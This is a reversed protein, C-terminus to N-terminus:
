HTMYKLFYKSTFYNSLLPCSMNLETEFPCAPMSCFITLLWLVPPAPCPVSQLLRDPNIVCKTLLPSLAEATAWFHAEPGNAIRLVNSPIIRRTHPDDDGYDDSSLSIIQWACPFKHSGNDNTLIM